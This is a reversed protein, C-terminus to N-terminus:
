IAKILPSQFNTVICLYHSMNVPIAYKAAKWDNSKRAHLLKTKVSYVSHLLNGCRLCTIMKGM